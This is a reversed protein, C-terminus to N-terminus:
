ISTKVEAAMTLAAWLDDRDANQYSFKELYNRVGRTFTELTFFNEAMRLVASGKSLFYNNSPKKMIM